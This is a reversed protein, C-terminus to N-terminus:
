IKYKLENKEETTLDMSKSLDDLLYKQFKKTGNVEIGVYIYEKDNSVQIFFIDEDNFRPEGNLNVLDFVKKNGVSKKIDECDTVPGGYSIIFYGNKLLPGNTCVRTDNESLGNKKFQTFYDTTILIERKPLFILKDNQDYYYLLLYAKDLFETVGSEITANSFDFKIGSKAENKDIDIIRKEDASLIKTYSQNVKPIPAVLVLENEKAKQRQIAVQKKQDAILKTQQEKRQEAQEARKQAALKDAELKEKREKEQKEHCISCVRDICSVTNKGQLEQAYVCGPACKLHGDQAYMIGNVLIGVFLFFIKITKM